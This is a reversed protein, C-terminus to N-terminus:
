SIDQVWKRPIPLKNTSDSNYCTHSTIQFHGVQGKVTDLVLEKTYHLGVHTPFSHGEKTAFLFPNQM